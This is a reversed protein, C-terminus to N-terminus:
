AIRWGPRAPKGKVKVILGDQALGELAKARLKDFPKGWKEGKMGKLGNNGKMLQRLIEGRVQRLSGEFKSQKAYHASRQNNRVGSRKLHAGYDMLAWHWERPDQGEAAKEAFPLINRDNVLAGSRVCKQRGTSIRADEFFHNISAARINTEILVDRKNFAFVRVAKATYDGVGPLKRLDYYALPVRGSFTLVLQKSADRLFKARRNYGMGSWVKLVDALPAKALARVNPFARLFEKYKEIVRPVQTQQLMVESVLIKYPDTTKRWPLEHRGSKKWYNWVVRRFKAIDSSTSSM